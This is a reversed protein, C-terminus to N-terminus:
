GKWHQYRRRQTGVSCIWAECLFIGSCVAGIGADQLQQDSASVLHLVPYRFLVARDHRHM